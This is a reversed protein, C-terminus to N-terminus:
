LHREGCCDCHPYGYEDEINTELWSYVKKTDQLRLWFHGEIPLRDSLVPESEIDYFRGMSRDAKGFYAKGKRKDSEMFMEMLEKEEQLASL